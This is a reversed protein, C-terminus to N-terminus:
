RYDTSFVHGKYRAAVTLNRRTNLAGEGCGEPNYFYYAGVSYEEPSLGEMEAIAQMVAITYDAELAMKAAEITENSISKVNAISAFQKSAFIVANLSVGDRRMRNLIVNGVIVKGTIGQNGAEAELEKCFNTFEEETLVIDGTKVPHSLIFDESVEYYTLTVGKEVITTNIFSSDSSVDNTMTTDEVRATMTLEAEAIVNEEVQAGASMTVIDTENETSNIIETDANATETGTVELAEVETDANATETGTVELAEVETDANVTETGTVELAEVETDANVTETGTVESAEVETDANVTETGTVELAEVKTDANVTETRTVELAEVKTDVNETETGAVELAEVETDVNVTETGTVELAEVKTDANVTETVTTESKTIQNIVSDKNSTLEQLNSNRALLTSEGIQPVNANVAIATNFTNLEFLSNKQNSTAVVGLATVTATIAAGKKLQDANEQVFKKAKIRRLERKYNFHQFVLTATAM